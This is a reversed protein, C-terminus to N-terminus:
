SGATGLVATTTLTKGDRVYTLKVSDGPNASTIAATLAAADRIHTSGVDTVVDGSKLGSTTAASGATVDAILAGGAPADTVRVGLLAQKPTRGALLDNAVKNARGIPIAFGIGINGAQANRSLNAIATNIGIVHGQVDVLAGGSNGPNISADTQIADTLGADVRHLASVIGATVSGELGLPSGIALVTDGVHVSADDALTAPTLGSVGRAKIVALDNNEDRGIIDAPATKGDAFRVTLTGGNAGVAAVHNNTLITGDSKLIVGSGSGSETAGSVAIYVVSPEVAAAVQALSETPKTATSGLATSAAPTVSAKNDVNRTAFEAGAVGSGLAIAVVAAGTTFAKGFRPRAPSPESLAPYAPPPPPPLAPGYALQDGAPDGIEDTKESDSTLLQQETM